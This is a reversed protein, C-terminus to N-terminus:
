KQPARRLYKAGVLVERSRTRGDIGPPLVAPFPRASDALREEGPLVRRLGGTFEASVPLVVPLSAPLENGAVLSRAASAPATTGPLAIEVREPQGNWPSWVMLVLAAAAALGGLARQPRRQARHRFVDSTAPSSVTLHATAVGSDLLGEGALQSRIGAWLDVPSGDALETRRTSILATRARELGKLRHSCPECRILHGSLSEALPAELDGGVFLPLHSRAEDCQMETTM